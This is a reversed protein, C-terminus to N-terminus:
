STGVQRSDKTGIYVYMNISCIHVSTRNYVFDKINGQKTTKIWRLERTNYDESIQIAFLM